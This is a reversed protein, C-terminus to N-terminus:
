LLVKYRMSDLIYPDILEILRLSSEKLLRIRFYKKDKNLFGILKIDSLKKLLLQQDHLDFQQTNLYLSDRDKSGDDMLWIALILPDLKLSEPVSKYEKKSYFEEYLPNLAELSVTTFRFAFRNKGSMRLKPPTTVFASLESYLWSVYDREKFSHNIELLTNTKKRLSGDGLLKGVVISTQRKTLSGM